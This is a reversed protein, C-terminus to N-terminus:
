PLYKPHKNKYEKPDFKDQDHLGSEDWKKITAKEADSFTELLNDYIAKTVDYECDEINSWQKNGSALYEQVSDQGKGAFWNDFDSVHEMERDEAWAKKANSKTPWKKIDATVVSHYKVQIVKPEYDFRISLFSDVCLCVVNVEFYANTTALTWFMPGKRMFSAGDRTPFMKNFEDSLEWVAETKDYHTEVGWQGTPDLYAYPKSKIYQLLNLSDIYELPDRQM